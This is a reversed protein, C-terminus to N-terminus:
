GENRALEAAVYFLADLIEELAECTFKRGDRRLDLGGYTERGREVRARLLAFIREEDATM